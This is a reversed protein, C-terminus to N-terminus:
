AIQAPPVSKLRAVSRTAALQERLFELKVAAVQRDLEVRFEARLEDRLKDRAEREEAIAKGTAKMAAEVWMKDAKKMEARLALTQEASLEGIVKAWNTQGGPPPKRQESALEAATMSRDFDGLAQYDSPGTYTM